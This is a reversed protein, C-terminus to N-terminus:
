SKNTSTLQIADAFFANCYCFSESNIANANSDRFLHGLIHKRGVRLRDFCHDLWFVLVGVAVGPLAFLM